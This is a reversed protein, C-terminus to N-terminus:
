IINDYDIIVDDSVDFLIHDYDITAVRYTKNHKYNVYKWVLKQGNYKGASKRQGQCCSTISQRYINYYEGGEKSTFFIKNTTICIVSKARPHNKGGFDAHNDIMKQKTEESHHKGYMPHNKGGYKGIRANSIKQRTEESHNGSEGGLSINYGYDRNATNYWQIFYQELEKAEYETLSDFLIIHDINDWGYKNIANTFYQNDKYGKGNLWRQKPERKTIGYYKKGNPAIHLYLKYNNM